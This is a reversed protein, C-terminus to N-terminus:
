YVRRNYIKWKRVLRNIDWGSSAIFPFSVHPIGFPIGKCCIFTFKYKKASAQFFSIHFLMFFHFFGMTNFWILSEAIISFQRSIIVLFVVSRVNYPFVYFYFLFKCLRISSCLFYSLSQLPIWPYWWLLTEVKLAEMWVASIVTILIAKISIWLLHTIYISQWLEIYDM